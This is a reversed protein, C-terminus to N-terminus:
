LWLSVVEFRKDAPSSGTGGNTVAIICPHADAYNAFYGRCSKRSAPSLKANIAEAALGARGRWALVPLLIPRNFFRDGEDHAIDMRSRRQNTNMGLAERAIHKMGQAAVTALLELKCKRHNGSRTGANQDILLLFPASNPQHCLQLGVFKLM